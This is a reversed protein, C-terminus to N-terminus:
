RIRELEVEPFLEPDVQPIHEPLARVQELPVFRRWRGDQGGHIDPIPLGPRWLVRSCLERPLERLLHLLM